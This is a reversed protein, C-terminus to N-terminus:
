AQLTLAKTPTTHGEASSLSWRGLFRLSVALGPRNDDLSLDIDHLEAIAAVISLGLGSGHVPAKTELREFRRLVRQRDAPPVGPGNDAITLLPNTDASLTVTVKSKPPTHRIANEVLNVIAQTILEGDGHVTIGAAVDASLSGGNDEAIMEYTQALSNVLASLDVQRFGRRRTGSEIQAIRLLAAFTNLLGDTEDVARALALGSAQGAQADAQVEELTQRLHSLPTRLEHAISSSVQRLADMLSVIRDLMRNLTAGLRDLEDDAARRPIRKHIDGDIIAEATQTIATIRGLFRDSIYLGGAIALVLTLLLVFGFTEIMAEGLQAIHGLDDGISLWIGDDLGVTLVTLQELEGPDEDGDPPGYLKTWGSKTPAESLDGSRTGAKEDVIGYVLGQVVRGRQRSAITDVLKTMGGEHFANELAGAESEIRARAQEEFATTTRLFVFAGLVVVSVSFLAAYAAALRFNATKTLQRLRM